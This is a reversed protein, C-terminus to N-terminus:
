NIQKISKVGPIDSATSSGVGQYDRQFAPTTGTLLGERAAKRAAAKQAIVDPGDGPQPFFKRGEAEFEAPSIAAGSTRRLWAQIFQRQAQEAQQYEPSTFGHGLSFPVADLARDVRSAGAMAPLKSMNGEADDMMKLFTQADSQEKNAKTSDPVKGNAIYQTLDDGQLGLQKGQNTRIDMEAKARDAADQYPSRNLTHYVSAIQAKKAERDLINDPTNQMAQNELLKQIGAPGLSQAIEPTIGLSKLFAPDSLKSQIGQTRALENQAAQGQMNMLRAQAATMADRQVGDMYQPAQALITAREKPTMRQGAAMLLMGIQGLRQMGAQQLDQQQMQQMTPQALAGANPDQATIPQANPSVGFFQSPFGLLRQQFDSLDM